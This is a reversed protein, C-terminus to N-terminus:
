SDLLLLPPDPLRQQLRVWRPLPFEPVDTVLPERGSGHAPVLVEDPTDGAPADFSRQLLILEVEARRDGTLKGDPEQARDELHRLLVSWLQDLPTVRQDSVLVRLVRGRDHVLYVGLLELIQLKPARDRLLHEVVSR